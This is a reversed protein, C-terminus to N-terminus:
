AAGSPNLIARHPIPRDLDQGLRDRARSVRSKVTGAPCGIVDAAAEYSLGEVAVLLLAERQAPDLRDLAGQLDRLSARHEQEAASALAAAHTGDPDAVELRYKRRGNFFGNRLIAFLWASLSSGPAFQRRHEWAKLLTHQVLDDADAGHHTLSLAYRRLRPVAGLLGARFTAPVEAQAEAADLARTLRALVQGLASGAELTVIEPYYEQLLGGLYSPILTAATETVAVSEPPADDTRVSPPGYVSSM